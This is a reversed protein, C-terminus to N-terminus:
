FALILTFCYSSGSKIMKKDFQRMQKLLELTLHAM